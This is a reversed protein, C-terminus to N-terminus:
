RPLERFQLTSSVNVFDRPQRYRGFQLASEKRTGGSRGQMPLFRMFSNV